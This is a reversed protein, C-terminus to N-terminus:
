DQLHNKVRRARKVLRKRRVAQAWVDDGVTVLQM